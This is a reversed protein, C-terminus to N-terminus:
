LRRRGQVQEYDPLQEAQRAEISRMSPKLRIMGELEKLRKELSGVAGDDEREADIVGKIETEEELLVRWRQQEEEWYFLLNVLKKQAFSSIISIQHAFQPTIAKTDIAASQASLVGNKILAAHVQTSVREHSTIGGVFFALSDLKLPDPLSIQHEFLQDQERVTLDDARPGLALNPVANNIFRSFSFIHDGTPTKHM